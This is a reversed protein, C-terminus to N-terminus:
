YYMQSTVIANITYPYGITVFNHMVCVLVHEKINWPGPNLSFKLSCLFTIPQILVALPSLLNLPIYSPPLYPLPIYCSTSPLSESFIFFKGM